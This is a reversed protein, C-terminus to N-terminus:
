AGALSNSRKSAGLAEKSLGHVGDQGSGLGSLELPQLGEKAIALADECSSFLPPLGHTTEYTYHASNVVTAWMM